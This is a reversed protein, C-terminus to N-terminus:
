GSAADGDDAAAGRRRLNGVLLGIVTVLYIQGILMEVVSLARGISTAPTLDGYGTTTMTTFSFYVHESPTGDTGERFYTADLVRTVVGIVMAFLLGVLLYVALAGAVAQLTVGRERILHVLGDVLSVLGIAILLTGLASALWVAIAGGGVLGAVAVTLVGAAAAAVRRTGLAGRGTVIVLLVLVGTLLLGVARSLPRDPAVIFFVVAVLALALTVGYRYSAEPGPKLHMEGCLM